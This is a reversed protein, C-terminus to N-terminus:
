WLHRGMGGSLNSGLRPGRVRPGAPSAAKALSPLLGLHTGDGYLGAQLRQQWLALARTNDGPIETPLDPYVRFAKLVVAPILVRYHHGAPFADPEDDDDELDVPRRYHWINLSDNAMPYISINTEDVVVRQVADGTDDHAPDLDDFATLDRELAFGQPVSSSSVRWVRKMYEYGDPHDAETLDYLWTSADTTLVAPVRLRLAPLDFSEALETIAQNLWGTIDQEITPDRLTKRVENQLELLTM